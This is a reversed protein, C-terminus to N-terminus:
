DFLSSARAAATVPEVCAPGERAPDNVHPSVPVARMAATAFPRCAALLDHASAAADLWLDLATGDLIVPMRDHIPAVLDNAATTLIVCSELAAGSPDRWRDWLGAFAFPREDELTLYWPQKRPGGTRQWEYFGDAAVLCRRQRFPERYARKSAVTETRANIMRNGIAPDDAWWPVLGWRVEGARREGEPEQRVVLVPQSPAINYRPRLGPLAPLRLLQALVEAPTKLTYRGCM